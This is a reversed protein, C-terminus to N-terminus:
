KIKQIYGDKYFKQYKFIYKDKNRKLFGKVIDEVDLACGTEEFLKWKAYNAFVSFTVRNPSFTRFLLFSDDLYKTMQLDTETENLREKKEGFYTKEFIKMFCAELYPTPDVVHGGGIDRWGCIAAFLREGEPTLEFSLNDHLELLDLDYLWNLRPMLVHELYIEPKKWERIRKELMQINYKKISDARNADEKMRQLNNLLLQQYVEKLKKYSPAQNTFAYEFLTFIYLYDYRLIEELFFAKDLLGMEFLSTSENQFVNYARSVKGLEFGNGVRSILNLGLAVEVYPKAGGGSKTQKIIGKANKYDLLEREYITATESVKKLFPKDLQLPSAKFLSLILKFYGLRRVKTNTTIHRLDYRPTIDLGHYLSENYAVLHHNDLFDIVSTIFQIDNKFEEAIEIFYSYWLNEGEMVFSDMLFDCVRYDKVAKPYKSKIYKVVQFMKWSVDYDKTSIETYPIPSTIYLKGIRVDRCFEEIDFDGVNNYCYKEELDENCKLELMMGGYRFYLWLKSCDYNVVSVCNCRNTLLEIIEKKIDTGESM